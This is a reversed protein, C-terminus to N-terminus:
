AISPGSGGSVSNLDRKCNERLVELHLLTSHLDSTERSFIHESHLFLSRWQHMLESEMKSAQKSSDGVAKRNFHQAHLKGELMRALRRSRKLASLRGRTDQYHLDTWMYAAKVCFSCNCSKELVSTCGLKLGESNLTSLMNSSCSVNHKLPEENESEYDEELNLESDPSPERVKLDNGQASLESTLNSFYCGRYNSPAGLKENSFDIGRELSFYNGTRQKAESSANKEWGVTKKGKELMPNELDFPIPRKGLTNTVNGLVQRHSQATGNMPIKSNM